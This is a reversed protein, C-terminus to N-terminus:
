LGVRERSPNFSETFISSILLLLQLRHWSGPTFIELNEHFEYIIKLKRSMEDFKGFKLFFRHGRGRHNGQGRVNSRYGVVCVADDPYRNSRRGAYGIRAPDGHM